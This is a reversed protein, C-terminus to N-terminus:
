ARLRAMVPALAEEARATGGNLASLTLAELAEDLDILVATEDSAALSASLIRGRLADAGAMREASVYAAVVADISAASARIARPLFSVGANNIVHNVAVTAAIERRLPHAPIDAAFDTQVRRPFYGVLFERAAPGDPFPSDLLLDYAWRKVQGLVVALLPRPLGREPAARELEAADPIGDDDRNLVGRTM